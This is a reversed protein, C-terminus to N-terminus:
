GAAIRSSPLRFRRSIPRQSFLQASFECGGNRHLSRAISWDVGVDVIVEIEFAVQDVSLGVLGVAQGGHGLPLGEHGSSVSPQPRSRRDSVLQSQVSPVAVVSDTTIQWRDYGDSFYVINDRAHEASNTSIRPLGHRINPSAACGAGTAETSAKAFELERRVFRGPQIVECVHGVNIWSKLFVAKRELEFYDPDHYPAAPIPDTGLWLVEERPVPIFDAPPANM